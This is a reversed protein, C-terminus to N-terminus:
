TNFLGDNKIDGVPPLVLDKVHRDGLPDKLQDWYLSSNVSAEM